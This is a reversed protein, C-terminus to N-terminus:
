CRRLNTRPSNRTHLPTPYYSSAVSLASCSLSSTATLFPRQTSVWRRRSGRGATSDTRAGTERLRQCFGTPESQRMLIALPATTLAGGQADLRASTRGGTAPRLYTRLRGAVAGVELKNGESASPRKM